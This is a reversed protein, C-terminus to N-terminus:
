RVAIFRSNIADTLLKAVIDDMERAIAKLRQDDLFDAVQHLCETADSLRSSANFIEAPTKTRAM